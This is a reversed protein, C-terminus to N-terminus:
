LQNPNRPSILAARSSRSTTISSAMPSSDEVKDMAVVVVLVTATSDTSRHSSSSSPLPLLSSTSTTRSRSFRSSSNRSTEVQPLTIVEKVVVVVVQTIVAKHSHQHTHHPLHSLPKTRLRSSGIRVLETITTTVMTIRRTASNRPAAM